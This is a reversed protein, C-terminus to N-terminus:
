NTPSLRRTPWVMAPWQHVVSLDRSESDISLPPHGHTYPCMAKRLSLRSKFGWDFLCHMQSDFRCLRRKQAQTCIPTFPRCGDYKCKCVCVRRCLMGGRLLSANSLPFTAPIVFIMAFRPRAMPRYKGFRIPSMNKFAAMVCICLALSSSFLLSIVVKWTYITVFM